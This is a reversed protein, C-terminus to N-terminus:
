ARPMAPRDGSLAGARGAPRRTGHSGTEDATAVGSGKGRERGENATDGVERRLVGAQIGLERIAAMLRASVEALVAKDIPGEVAAIGPALDAVDIPPGYLVRAHAPTRVAQWFEATEPTGWVFAPIVPVRAHLVIFAAGPRPEGLARGSAPTIRGEPFIPLVRGQELVRLAARAAALDHGDRRVPICGMRRCLPRFLWFEFYERAILFGLVRRSTAQLLMSDAPCTHNAILIAPGHEPLPAFADAELRYVVACYGANLGWLLRLVGRIEADNRRRPMLVWPGVLFAFSLVLLIWVSM